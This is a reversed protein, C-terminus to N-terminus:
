NEAIHFVHGACTYWHNDATWQSLIATFSAENKQCAAIANWKYSFLKKKLCRQNVKVYRHLNKCPHWCPHLLPHFAETIDVSADDIQGATTLWSGDDCVATLLLGCTFILSIM